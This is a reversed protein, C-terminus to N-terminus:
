DSFEGFYKDKTNSPYKIVLVKCDSIAKFINSQKPYIVIGEGETLVQGNFSASGIVMLSIETGVKHYHQKEETGAVYSQIAVEIDKSKFLSPEFDGIIWGKFFDKLVFKDM